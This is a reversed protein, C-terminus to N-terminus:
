CKINRVALYGRVDQYWKNHVTGSSGFNIYDELYSFYAIETNNEFGGNYHGNGIIVNRNALESGRCNSVTSTGLNIGALDLTGAGGNGAPNGYWGMYGNQNMTMVVFIFVNDMSEGYHTAIAESESKTLLTQLGTGGAVSVERCNLKIDSAPSVSIGFGHYADDATTTLNGLILRRNNSTQNADHVKLRFVIAFTQNVGESLGTNIGNYLVGSLKITSYKIKASLTNCAAESSNTAYPPTHYSPGNTNDNIQAGGTFSLQHLSGSSNTSEALMQNDFGFFYHKEAEMYITIAPYLNDEALTFDSAYRAGLTNCYDSTFLFTTHVDSGTDDVVKTYHTNNAFRDIVSQLFFTSNSGNTAVRSTIFPTLHNAGTIDHRLRQVMKLFNIPYNANGTDQEGAHFLIGEFTASSYSSLILNCMDVARNYVIEDVNHGGSNNVFSTGRDAAPILLIKRGSYLNLTNRLTNVFNKALGHTSAPEDAYDLPPSSIQHVTFDTPDNNFTTFRYEMIDDPFVQGGLADTGIMNDNGALLFVAFDEAFSVFESPAIQVNLPYTVGDCTFTYNFRLYQVPVVNSNVTATTPPSEIVFKIYTQFGEPFGLEAGDYHMSVTPRVFTNSYFSDHISTNVNLNSGAGSGFRLQYIGTDTLSQLPQSNSSSLGLIFSRAVGPQLYEELTPIGNLYQRDVNRLNIMISSNNDLNNLANGIADDDLNITTDVDDITDVLPIFPTLNAPFADTPNFPYDAYIVGNVTVVATDNILDQRIILRSPGGEIEDDPPFILLGDAGAPGTFGSLSTGNPYINYIYLRYTQHLIPDEFVFDENINFSVLVEEANTTITPTSTIGDVYVGNKANVLDLTLMNGGNGFPVNNYAPETNGDPYSFQKVGALAIVPTNDAGNYSSYAPINITQSGSIPVNEYPQYPFSQPSFGFYAVPISRQEVTCSFVQLGGDPHTLTVSVQRNSTDNNAPIAINFYGHYSYEDSTEVLTWNSPYVPTPWTGTFSTGVILDSVTMNDALDNASLQAAIIMVTFTHPIVEVHGDTISPLNYYSGVWDSSTGLFTTPLDTNIDFGKKQTLTFTESLVAHPANLTIEVSRAPGAVIQAPIEFYLTLENSNVNSGMNDTIWNTSQNTNNDSVVVNAVAANEPWEANPNITAVYTIQGGDRPINTLSLGDGLDTMNEPQFEDRTLHMLLEEGQHIFITENPPATTINPTSYLSIQAYRDIQTSNNSVTINLSQSDFSTINLWSPTEEPFTTPLGSSDVVIAIASVLNCLTTEINITQASQNFSLEPMVDPDAIITPTGLNATIELFDPISLLNTYNLPASLSIKFKHFSFDSTIYDITYNELSLDSNVEYFFNALESFAKEHDHDAKINLRVECLEVTEGPIINGEVFSNNINM